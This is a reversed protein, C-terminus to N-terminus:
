SVYASSNFRLFSLGFQSLQPCRLTEMVDHETHIDQEFFFFINSFYVCLSM